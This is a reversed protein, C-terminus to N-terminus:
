PGPTHDEQSRTPGTQTTRPRRPTSARAALPQPSRQLTDAHQNVVVIVRDLFRRVAVREGAGLATAEATLEALIPGLTRQLIRRGKATAKLLLLRGDTPHPHRRVVQNRELRDSLGTMTSTSLGLSRGVDGPIVGDAEAARCLVLFELLGGLHLLVLGFGLGSARAQAILLRQLARSAGQLTVVLAEPELAVPGPEPAPVTIQIETSAVPM